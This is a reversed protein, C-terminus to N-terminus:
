LNHIGSALSSPKRFQRLIFEDHFKGEEGGEIGFAGRAAGRDDHGVHCAALLPQHLRGVDGLIRQLATSASCRRLPLLPM